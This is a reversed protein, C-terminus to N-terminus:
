LRSFTWPSPNPTVTGGRGGKEGGRTHNLGPPPPDVGRRSHWKQPCLKPQGTNEDEFENPVECGRHLLDILHGDSTAGFRKAM